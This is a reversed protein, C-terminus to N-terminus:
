RTPTAANIVFPTSTRRPCGRRADMCRRRARRPQRHLVGAASARRKASSSRWTRASRSSAPTARRLLTFGRPVDEHTSGGSATSLGADGDLGLMLNLNQVAQGAAGKVLNDIAATLVVVRRGRDRIAPRRRARLPQHGGRAKLTVQTRRPRSTSSPSARTPTRSPAAHATPLRARTAPARLRHRPHRAQRAAPAAHLHAAGRARWARLTQAIEPTHQHRLVRYARFDEDVEGFSCTRPRGQPGRRHRGVRRRRDIPGRRAAGRAAAAGASCRAATAYCGPNAVLRAGATRERGLEPLGYM